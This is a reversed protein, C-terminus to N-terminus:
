SRPRMVMSSNVSDSDRAGGRGGYMRVADAFDATAHANVMPSPSSCMNTDMLTDGGM